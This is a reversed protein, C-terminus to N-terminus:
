ILNELVKLIGSSYEPRLTGDEGIYAAHHENREWGSPPKGIHHRPHSVVAEAGFGDGVHINATHIFPFAYLAVARFLHRIDDLRNVPVGKRIGHFHEEAAIDDPADMDFGDDFAGWTESRDSPCCVVYKVKNMGIVGRRLMPMNVTEHETTNVSTTPIQAREVDATQAQAKPVPITEVGMEHLVKEPLEYNQEVLGFCMFGTYVCFSILKDEM